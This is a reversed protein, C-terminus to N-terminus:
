LAKTDPNEGTFEVIYYDNPAPPNGKNELEKTRTPYAADQGKAQVTYELKLGGDVDDFYIIQGDNEKTYSCEKGKGNVVKMLYNNEFLLNFTTTLKIDVAVSQFTCNITPITTIKKELIVVNKNEGYFYPKDFIGGEMKDRSYAKVTYSGVPLVIFAKKQMEAFSDFVITTDLPNDNTPNSKLEVKFTSADMGFSKTGVVKIEDDIGVTQLSLQGYNEPVDNNGIEDKQCSVALMSLISFLLLSINNLTKM